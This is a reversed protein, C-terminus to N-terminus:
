GSFNRRELVVAAILTSVVFVVGSTGLCYWTMPFWSSDIADCRNQFVSWPAELYSTFVFQDISLPYKVLDVVLWLAVAVTTAAIANPALVSVLVGYAAGAAQPALGLLTGLWYARFMEDNTYLVEGGYGVGALDGQIIAIAWGLGSVTLTLALAFSLAVAIKALLYEFRRIPRAVILRITGSGTEGAITGASFLLVLLFGLLNLALPTTRALFTYGAIPDQGPDLRLAQAGVVLGLLVPGLIVARSYLAKSFEVRYLTWLRGMM